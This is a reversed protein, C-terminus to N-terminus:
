REWPAMDLFCKKFCFTQSLRNQPKWWLGPRLGSKWIIQASYFIFKRIHVHILHALSILLENRLLNLSWKLSYHCKMKDVLIVWETAFIVDEFMIEWMGLYLLGIIDWRYCNINTQKDSFTGWLPRWSCGKHCWLHWRKSCLTPDELRNKYLISIRSDM